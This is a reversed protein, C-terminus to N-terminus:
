KRERVKMRRIKMGGGYLVTGDLEARTQTNGTGGWYVAAIEGM